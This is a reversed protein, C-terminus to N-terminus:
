RLHLFTFFIEWCKPQTKCFAEQEFCFIGLSGFNYCIPGEVHRYKDIHGIQYHITIYYEVHPHFNYTTFRIHGRFHLHYRM